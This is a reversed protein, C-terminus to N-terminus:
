EMTFDVPKSFFNEPFATAHLRANSDPTPPCRQPRAVDGGAALRQMTVAVPYQAVHRLSVGPLGIGRDERRRAEFKTASQRLNRQAKAEL